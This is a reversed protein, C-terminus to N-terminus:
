DDLSPGKERERYAELGILILRLIMTSPTRQTAEALQAIEERPLNGLYVSLNSDLEQILTRENQNAADLLRQGTPSLLLFNLLEEIFTSRTTGEQEARSDLAELLGIECYFTPRQLDNSDQSSRSRKRAM